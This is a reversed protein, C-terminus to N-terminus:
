NRALTVVSYTIESHESAVNLKRNADAWGLMPIPGFIVTQGALVSFTTIHGLRNFPDAQSTITVTRAGVGNNRILLIDNGTLVVDDGAPTSATYVCNILAAPYAIPGTIKTLTPM